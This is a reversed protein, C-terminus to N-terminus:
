KFQISKLQEETIIRDIDGSDSCVYILPKGGIAFNRKELKIPINYEVFNIPILEGRYLIYAQELFEWKGSHANNIAPKNNLARTLNSLTDIVTRDGRYFADIRMSAQEGIMHGTNQLIQMAETTFAPTFVANAFDMGEIFIQVNIQIIRGNLDKEKVPRVLYLDIPKANPNKSCDEVYQKAPKTFGKSSAVIGKELPLCLLAGSLKTVDPRGVKESYDKVEVFTADSVSTILNDIQYSGDSYQSKVFVNSAVSADVNLLKIVAGVLLEYGAGRKKPKFGYVGEFFDDMNEEANSKILDNTM